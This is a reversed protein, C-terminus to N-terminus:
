HAYPRPDLGLQALTKATLENFQPQIPGNFSNDEGIGAVHPHAQRICTTRRPSFM